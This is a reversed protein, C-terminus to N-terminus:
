AYIAPVTYTASAVVQLVYGAGRQRVGTGFGTAWFSDILPYDPQKGKILRMGRLNTNPHERFGVPNGISLAGGTVFTFVYGPPMWDDQVVLAPGYSGIVNLGDLTNAPQGQGFFQQNTALIVGPQGQAPIFDYKGVGGNATSKFTRIVAGEQSNAMIVTRYGNELGYGHKALDDLVADIHTAALTANNTTTYHNHTSTFTNNKYSPPTTGDNNYFKYVTYAQQNINATLNANNFICKFVEFLQKRYYAEVSANAVSDVMAATADALYQWTYRAALDYWKFTYAMNFYAPTVRSGVPEGFETADEFDVGSGPQAVLEVPQQVSFTLFRIIAQRSENVANLLDMFDLWIQNLDRGDATQTVIDAAVHAGHVPAGGAVGPVIGLAHLDVLEMGRKAYGATPGPYVMDFGSRPTWLTSQKM